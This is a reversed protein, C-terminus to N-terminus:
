FYSDLMSGQCIFVQVLIQPKDPPQIKVWVWNNNALLAAHVDTAIVRDPAIIAAMVPCGEWRLPLTAMEQIKPM